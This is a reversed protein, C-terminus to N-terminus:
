RKRHGWNSFALNPDKTYWEKRRKKSCAKCKANARGRSASYSFSFYPLEEECENCMQTLIDNM